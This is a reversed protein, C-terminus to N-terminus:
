GHASLIAAHRRVDHGMLVADLSGGLKDALALGQGLLEFTVPRIGSADTEAVVWVHRNGTVNRSAPVSSVTAHKSTPRGRLMAVANAAKTAANDGEVFTCKRGTAGSVVEK